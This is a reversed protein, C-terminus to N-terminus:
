SRTRFVRLDRASVAVHADALPALRTPDHAGGLPPLWRVLQDFPPDARYTGGETAIFLVGGAYALGEASRDGEVALAGVRRADRRAHLVLWCAAPGQAAVAVTADDVCVLERAEDLPGGATARARERLTAGDLLALAHETLAVIGSEDWVVARPEGALVAEGARAGTDAAFAVLQNPAAGAVVRAGDPSFAVAPEDGLLPATWRAKGSPLDFLSLDDPTTVALAGDDPSLACGRVTRMAGLFLTGRPQLSAADLLRVEGDLTDMVVALLQGSAGTAVRYVKGEERTAVPSPFM